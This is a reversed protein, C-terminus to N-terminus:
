KHRQIVNEIKFGHFVKLTKSFIRYFPRLQAPTPVSITKCAKTPAAYFDVPKTRTVSCFVTLIMIVVMGKESCQLIPVTSKLFHPM